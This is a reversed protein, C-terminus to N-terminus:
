QLVDKNGTIGRSTAHWIKCITGKQKKMYRSLRDILKVSQTRRFEREEHNTVECLIPATVLQKVVGFEDLGSESVFRKFSEVTTNTVTTKTYNGSSNKVIQDIAYVPLAVRVTSPYTNSKFDVIEEPEDGGRLIYRGSGYSVNVTALLYEKATLIGGSTNSAVYIVNTLNDFDGPLKYEVNTVNIDFDEVRWAPSTHRFPVTKNSGVTYTEIDGVTLPRLPSTRNGKGYLVAEHIGSSGEGAVPNYYLYFAAPTYDNPVITSEYTIDPFYVVSSGNNFAFKVLDSVRPNAPVTTGKLVAVYGSEAYLKNTAFITRDGIGWSTKRRRTVNLPQINPALYDVSPESNIIPGGNVVLLGTRKNGIYVTETMDFEQYTSKETTGDTVSSVPKTVAVGYPDTIVDDKNYTQVNINLKEMNESTIAIKSSSGDSKVKWHVLVKTFISTTIRENEPRATANIAVGLAQQGANALISYRPSLSGYLTLINDNADDWGKASICIYGIGNNYQLGQIKEDVIEFYRGAVYGRMANVNVVNDNSIDCDFDVIYVPNSGRATTEVHTDPTATYLEQSTRASAIADTVSAIDRSWTLYRDSGDSEFTLPNIM